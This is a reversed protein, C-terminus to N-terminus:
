SVQRWLVAFSTITITVCSIQQNGAFYEPVPMRWIMENESYPLPHENKFSHQANFDLLNAEKVPSKKRNHIINFPDGNIIVVNVGSQFPKNNHKIVHQVQAINYLLM